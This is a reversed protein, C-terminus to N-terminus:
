DAWDSDRQTLKEIQGDTTLGLGWEDYVGALLVTYLGPEAIWWCPISYITDLRKRKFESRIKREAFNSFYWLVPQGYESEAIEVMRRLAAKM